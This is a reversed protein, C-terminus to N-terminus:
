RGVSRRYARLWLDQHNTFDRVPRYAAQFWDEKVFGSGSAQPLVVYDPEYVQIAWSASDQYTTDPGFQRAVDPQILGAFDIMPRRAYYGIIGVELAGVTATSPTNAEIWRGIEEYVALRPDLNQSLWLTGAWLPALLALILLGMAGLALLRPLRPRLARVLAVAGASVLVVFAPVLPAYYWQYRSVSLLSYALFYLGTWALLPAWYRARTVVYGLGVLALAGHLWYLPQRGYAQVLDWFGPGFRLSIAMRGQQQKAWLTVPLPSGFYLWLGAHWAGVLGV